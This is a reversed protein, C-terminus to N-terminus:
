IGCILSDSAVFSVRLLWLHCIQWGFTFRFSKLLLKEKCIGKRSRVFFNVFIQRTKEYNILNYFFSLLSCKINYFPRFLLGFLWKM